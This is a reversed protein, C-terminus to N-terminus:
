QRTAIFVGTGIMVSGAGRNIRRVATASSFLRRTRSALLAYTGMVTSLIFAVLAAVLCIDLTSLTSLDLFTPLFGAYFLIVKPNGLTILLGSVFGRMRHGHGTHRQLEIRLPGVTWLKWGLWILYASGILRIWFFLDGFIYALASLGGVALALFILDGIVIGVIVQLASRFGNALAQSVSAFVGPGPTVALVFMALSFGIIADVNM